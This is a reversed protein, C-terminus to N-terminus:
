LGKLYEILSTEFVETPQYPTVGGGAVYRAVASGLERLEGATWLREQSYKRCSCMAPTVAAGGAKLVSHHPARTQPLDCSLGVSGDYAQRGLRHGSEPPSCQLCRM